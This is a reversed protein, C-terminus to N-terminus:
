QNEPIIVKIKHAKGDAPFSECLVGNDYIGCDDGRQVELSIATNKYSIEMSFGDWKAPICPKISFNGNIKIGLLWELIARYLWAAAGTYISWGGHGYCQPNTYIDASIYYPENKYPGGAEKEKYKGSPLLAKILEYGKEANGNQLFAICLWVAGHTYQGGNERIGPPYAAVYGPSTDDGGFPPDFLKIIGNKQDFLHSYASDLAVANRQFNELGCIAAFSQSLSDIQCEANAHSGMPRKDDFFARLYWEGDWCHTEINQKLEESIQIYRQARENEGAILCIQSFKQLVISMFESLWVSEGKGGIGVKNYGDNWDGGGILMLGHEGILSLSHEIARICHNYVSEYLSSKQVNIYNEHQGEVLLPGDCYAISKGLISKDGTKEIYECLTYPLWLLDDSYRTRVGRMTKKPLAHWWHLVDGEPFQASCARFIQRKTIQPNQILAACSDQLQDRFGWAGSNQYFGTKAFIRGAVTQHFLWTNFFKNLEDDPTNIKFVNLLEYSSEKFLKPMMVASDKTKGFSLFFDMKTKSKKSLKKKCVLAACPNNQSSLSKEDFKGCLFAQRDTIPICDESCSLAMYGEIDNRAMNKAILSDKYFDFVILRSNERSVSLVPETYFAIRCNSEKSLWELELSIKKCCGKQSVFVSVISTFYETHGRYVAKDPYFEAKSNLVLDFFKGDVELLLLEGRNDSKIDNTWPTLKNERSNIAYTFGLSCSSLLTGFVPNALVHCWPVQPLSSIEAKEESLDWGSTGQEFPNVGEIKVPSFKIAPTGMRVMTKPAIHVAVALFLTRIEPPKEFLNILHIGGFTGICSDSHHKRIHAVLMNKVPADYDAREEYLFVLDFNIGCLKLARHTKIYSLIREDDSQSFIEVVVIPLDGSVAFEWLNNISLVNQAIAEDNEASDRRKFLIQPLILSAIRGEISSAKIPSPVDNATVLKEERIEAINKYLEDRTLASCIFLTCNKQEKPALTLDRKIFVCPDPIHCANNELLKANEFIRKGELPYPLMEERSFNCIFGDPQLFGIACHIESSDNRSKRTIYVISNAEDYEMKFFLKAFAPHANYDSLKMLAPEIYCLLSATQPSSSTNKVAFQRFECPLNKHLVIRMGSELIKTNSYYNVENELFEVSQESKQCYAPLFSFYSIEDNCLLAFYCGQSRRALDLTRVYIDRGQYIAVVAGLDTAAVSYEGNSLLKVKPQSIDFVDFYDNMDNKEKLPIFNSKEQFDNYVVSGSIVKEELLELTSNMHNDRMFRKQMIGGYLTNSIALISMGVHHAMYSKIIMGSKRDNTFDIAEYHGYIGYTGYKKLKKLNSFAPQTELQLALYSSYPSVIYDNGLGKRLGTEPVGNAKYQYNLSNDFAYYGSESIGFPLGNARAYEKQCHICYKLSEYLLSGFKSKLLLEPMFFEFFTGSFSVCGSYSGHRKMTRSLNRWHKKPVIRKAVAYYSLLRAESMLMDYHNESSKGNEPDVGIVFLGKSKNYFITFDTEDILKEIRKILSPIEHNESSFEKLGEKLAVLCCVFNGSDVSSIFPNSSPKLTDTDYWNYLNGHYKELKEISCLTRSVRKVLGDTSIIDFDRAALCSLLMMGINTPSTRRCIRMVPAFQVNDPPLYNNEKEAYDEYFQWMAYLDSSLVAQKETSISKNKEPYPKTSFYVLIPMAAWIVGSLRIFSYSSFLLCLSLIEAPLYYLITQTKPSVKIDAQASTTWELLKKHSIFRRWLARACADLSVMAFQPLLMFAYFAQALLSKTESIASSYYKRSLGFYGNNIISVAIGTLYPTLVAFVSILILVKSINLGAFICLFPLLFIFFPTIARRVNDILKFRNFMSVPNSTKGDYTPINKLIYPINQIDGRIWRHQRKFYSMVTLPFDDRFEIDGAFATRMLNSELIDHSLICETPFFDCCLEGFIKADILGKGSFIGEGFCDQYLNPCLTDYASSSGLGGFLRSFPTKLSSSLSTSIRPSIIGYGQKVVGNSIQPKNLPHIAISVLEAISDFLPKTDYDLAAIYKAGLLLEKDGIVSIDPANQGQILKTLSCIAGRKREFGIYCGQTKSYSRERTIGIFRNGFEANLANITKKLCNSLAADDPMKPLKSPKFDCLMCFALNETKNLFYLRKLKEKIKLTDKPSTLITSIVAITKANGPIKGKLNMRPLYTAEQKLSCFYDIFPKTIEWFPLFILFPLWWTKLPISILVSFILPFFLLLFVYVRESVSKKLKSYEKFIYFGVHAEREPMKSDYAKKSLNLFKEGLKLEDSKSKKAIYATRERYMRRTADDMQPYIGLPEKRYLIELTNKCATIEETDIMDTKTLISILNLARTNETENKLYIQAFEYVATYSFAWEINEFEDNSIYRSTQMRGIIECIEDTDPLSNGKCGKLIADGIQPVYGNACFLAAASCNKSLTKIKGDIIYYNDFIVQQIYNKNEAQIAEKYKKRLFAQIKKLIKIYNSINVYSNVNFPHINFMKAGEAFLKKLSNNASLASYNL